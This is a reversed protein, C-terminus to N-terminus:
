QKRNRIMALIDEARQSSPKAATVPAVAEAVVDDADFPADDSEAVPAPAAKAVPAPAAVPTAAPAASNGASNLGAPKYYNAWRDPDYAQRKYM